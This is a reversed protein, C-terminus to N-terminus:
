RLAREFLKHVWASLKDWKDGLRDTIPGLQLVHLKAAPVEPEPPADIWDVDSVESVIGVRLVPWNRTWIPYMVTLVAKINASGRLGPAKVPTGCDAPSSLTKM